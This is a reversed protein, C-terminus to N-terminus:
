DRVGVMVCNQRQRYIYIYINSRTIENKEGKEIKHFYRLHNHKIM